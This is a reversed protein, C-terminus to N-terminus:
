KIQSILKTDSLNKKNCLTKYIIYVYFFTKDLTYFYFLRTDHVFKNKIILYIIQIINWKIWHNFTILEITSVFKYMNCFKDWKHVMSNIMM